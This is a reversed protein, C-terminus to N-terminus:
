GLARLPPAAVAQAEPVLAAQVQLAARRLAQHYHRLAAEV